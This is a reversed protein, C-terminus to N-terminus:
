WSKFSGVIIVGTNWAGEVITLLGTVRGIRMSTRITIGLARRVRQLQFVTKTSAKAGSGLKPIRAGAFCIAGTIRADFTNRDVFDGLRDAFTSGIGGTKMLYKEDESWNPDCQCMVHHCIPCAFSSDLGDPDANNTPNLECYAYTNPGGDIGIPDRQVFRGCAPDYYRYGVHLWGLDTLPDGSQASGEYGWAGVYGYRTDFGTKSVEEGFATYVRRGAVAGNNGSTGSDSVAVRTGILNGHLYHQEQGSSADYDYQALGQLHATQEHEVFGTVENGSTTAEVTYDPFIGGDYDSWTGAETAPTGDVRPALELTDPDLARMLYRQTPGDYRYEVASLCTMMNRARM